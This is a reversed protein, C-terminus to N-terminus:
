QDNSTGMAMQIFRWGGRPYTASGRDHYYQISGRAITM